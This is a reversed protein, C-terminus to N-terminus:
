TKRVTSLHGLTASRESPASNQDPILEVKERARLLLKEDKKSGQEKLRSWGQSASVIIVLLQVIQVV